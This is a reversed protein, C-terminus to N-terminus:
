ELADLGIEIAKEIIKKDEENLNENKLKELMNKTFLGKLTNNHSLKELNYAIKTKNKIKIIRDNTILKIIEYTDIEFNRDGKLIIKVYQNEKIVLSNIKEILDEKSYFETVDIEIEIFEEEDLKIFELNLEDENIEGVIMGHDGLEDFGLSIMSGPYVIRQNEQTNYDIKHIHGLAIYDFNKEKLMNKSMSNYQKEEISAGDITGHIILINKKDKKEIKVDQIDCNNCYFDDFGYGYIYAEETEIQEIESNFIKVNKSWEFQNYYSNKIFPDHNGPSIFIKTNPIEEFLKNIYEITSKRVYKQEYLDGSIFLYKIDNEKIYQIVKKFAKRQELRRLDGMNDRDSLNVFPCDFHVDAIHVFKM